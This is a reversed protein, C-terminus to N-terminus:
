ESKRRAIYNHFINKYIDYSFYNYVLDIDLSVDAEWTPNSKIKEEFEEKSLESYKRNAFWELTGYTKLESVTSFDEEILSEEIRQMEYSTGNILLGTLIIYFIFESLIIKKKKIIMDKVSAYQTVMNQIVFCMFIFLAPISARMVLDNYLGMRFLPLIVLEVVTLYFMIDKKYSPFMCMAALLVCCIIFIFYVPFYQGYEIIHFSLQDPKTSFINGYYYLIFISGLSLLSVINEVTFIEKFVQIKDKEKIVRYIAFGLAIPALGLISLPSFLVLPMMYVLYYRTKEKKQLFMLTIIWAPIAQNAVWRICKFCGSYQLRIMTGEVYINHNTFCDIRCLLWVMVQALAHPVCFFALLFTEFLIAKIGKHSLYLIMNLWVVVIGIETWIYMVIESVRFSGTIKGFVAPVLYHGIYYTLMSEEGDNVYYVPWDRSILDQLIANHKYWDYPQNTWRGLGAYYGIILYFIIGGIFLGIHIQIGDDEFQDSNIFRIFRYTVFCITLLVAFCIYIKTFGALFILLPIYIYSLNIFFLVKKRVTVVTNRRWYKM